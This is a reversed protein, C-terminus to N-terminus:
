KGGFRVKGGVPIVLAKPKDSRPPPAWPDVKERPSAERPPPPAGGIMIGEAPMQTNMERPVFVPAGSLPPRAPPLTPVPVPPPTPDAAGRSLKLAVDRVHKCPVVRSPCTCTWTQDPYLSVTYDTGSDGRVQWTSPAEAQAGKIPTEEAPPIFHNPVPKSEVSLEATVAAVEEETPVNWDNKRSTVELVVARHLMDPFDLKAIDRFRPDRTDAFRPNILLRDEQTSMRKDFLTFDGKANVCKMNRCGACVVKKFGEPEKPMKEFYPDSLCSDLLDPM